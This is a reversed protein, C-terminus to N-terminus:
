NLLTPKFKYTRGIQKNTPYVKKFLYLNPYVEKAHRWDTILKGDQIIKDGVVTKKVLIKEKTKTYDLPKRDWHCIDIFINHKIGLKIANLMLKQLEKYKPLNTLVIDIDLTNWGQTFGSALWTQYKNVDDLKLYDKFWNKFNYVTPAQFNCDFKYNGYQWIM